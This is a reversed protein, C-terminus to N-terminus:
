KITMQLAVKMVFSFVFYHVHPHGYLLYSFFTCVISFVEVLHLGKFYKRLHFLWRDQTYFMLFLQQFVYFFLLGDNVVVAAIAWYDFSMLNRYEAMMQFWVYYHNLNMVAFLVSILMVLYPFNQLANKLHQLFM